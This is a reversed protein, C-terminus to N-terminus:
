ISRWLLLASIGVFVLMTFFILVAETMGMEFTEDDGDVDLESRSIEPATSNFEDSDQLDYTLIVEDKNDPEFDLTETTMLTTDTVDEQIIAETEEGVQTEITWSGSGDGIDVLYRLEIPTGYQFNSTDYEVQWTCSSNAQPSIQGNSECTNELITGNEPESFSENAEYTEVSIQEVETMFNTGADDVAGYVGFISVVIFTSFIAYGFLKMGGQGKM